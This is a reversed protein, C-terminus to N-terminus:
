LFTNDILRTQGVRVALVVQSEADLVDVPEFTNRNVIEVYDVRARSAEALVSRMAQKVADADREGHGYLEEAKDLSKRLSLADQREGDSLYVNRSSMALGDPERATPGSVIRLPMNLDAVMRRVLFLQQADKEGFVAVDPSVIHFLKAVVTLVGAFHGPRSAGELTAAVPPEAVRVVAGPPYMDAASPHFLYDVSAQGCHERDREFSRPYRDFDEGPGFQTPNVFICVVVVDAEGRALRVLSLHGEHLHGMTPVFAITRGERRLALATRQMDEPKQILEM